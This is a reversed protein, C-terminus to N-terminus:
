RTTQIPVLSHRVLVGRDDFVLVLSFQTAVWAARDLDVLEGAHTERAYNAVAGGVDPGVRFTLIRSAEFTAAPMGLRLLIQERTSSGDQVFDLFKDQFQRPSPPSQTTCGALGGCGTIVTLILTWATNM